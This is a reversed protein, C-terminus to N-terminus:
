INTTDKCGFIRIFANDLALIATELGRGPRIGQARGPTWDVMGPTDTLYVGDRGM